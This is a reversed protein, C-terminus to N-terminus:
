LSAAEFPRMVVLLRPCAQICAAFRRADLM